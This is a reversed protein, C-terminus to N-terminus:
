LADGTYKLKLEWLRQSVLGIPSDQPCGGGSKLVYEAGDGWAVHLESGGGPPDHCLDATYTVVAREFEAAEALQRVKAYEDGELQFSTVQGALSTYVLAGDM